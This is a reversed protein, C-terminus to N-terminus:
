AIVMEEKSSFYYYAAGTAVEAEAAIDRMTTQDFGRKRFLRLAADLIRERTEEAKTTVLRAGRLRQRAIRARARARDGRREGARASRLDEKSEEVADRVSAAGVHSPGAVTPPVGGPWV